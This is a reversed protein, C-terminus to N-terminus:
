NQRASWFPMVQAVSAVEYHERPLRNLGAVSINNITRVKDSQRLESLRPHTRVGCLTLLADVGEQPDYLHQRMGGVSRHGKTIAWIPLPLSLNTLEADALTFPVNM